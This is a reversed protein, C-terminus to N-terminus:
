KQVERLSQTTGIWSALRALEEDRRRGARKRGM